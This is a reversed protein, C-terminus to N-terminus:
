LPSNKCDWATSARQHCSGARRVLALRPWRTLHRRCLLMAGFLNLLFALDTKRPLFLPFCSSSPPQACRCLPVDFKLSEKRKCRHQRAASPAVCSHLRIASLNRPSALSHWDTHAPPPRRVSHPTGDEPLRPCLCLCLTQISAIVSPPLALLMPKLIPTSTQVLPTLQSASIWQVNRSYRHKTPRQCSRLGAACHCLERRQGDGAAGACSTGPRLGHRGAARHGGPQAGAAATAGASTCCGIHSRAM